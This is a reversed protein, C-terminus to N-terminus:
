KMDVIEEFSPRSRWEQQWAKKVIPIMPCPRSPLSPREGALTKAICDGAKVCEGWVEDGTVCVVFLLSWSFVDSAPLYCSPNKLAEPAYHRLSGRPGQQFSSMAGQHICHGFDAVAAHKGDDTILINRSHLDRHLLGVRHLYKMGQACDLCLATALDDSISKGALFNWLSGREFRPLVFGYCNANGGLQPIIETGICINSHEIVALKRRADIEHLVSSAKRFFHDSKDCRIIKICVMLGDHRRRASM